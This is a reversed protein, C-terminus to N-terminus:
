EKNLLRDLKHTLSAFNARNERHREDTAQVLATHREDLRHELTAAREAIQAYRLACIDEHAEHESQLRTQETTLGAVLTAVDARIAALAEANDAAFGRTRWVAAGFISLFGALGTVFVWIPLEIM